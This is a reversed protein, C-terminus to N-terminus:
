EYYCFFDPMGQTFLCEFLRRSLDAAKHYMEMARHLGEKALKWKHLIGIAANPEESCGTAASERAVGVVVWMVRKVHEQIINSEQSHTVILRSAKAKRGGVPIESNRLSSLCILGHLAMELWELWIWGNGALELWKCGNVTM